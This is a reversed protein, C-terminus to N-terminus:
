LQSVVRKATSLIEDVSPEREEFLSAEILFVVERVRVTLRRSDPGRSLFAEDGIGEV